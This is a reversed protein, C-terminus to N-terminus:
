DIALPALGSLSVAGLARKEATAPKELKLLLELKLL